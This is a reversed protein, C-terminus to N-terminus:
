GACLTLLHPRTRSVRTLLEWGLWDGKDDSTKGLQVCLIASEIRMGWAGEKYYGPECSIVHGSRAFSSARHSCCTLSAATELAAIATSMVCPKLPYPNAIGEPGEHVGGYSGIGHGVGHGFDLQAQWLAFRALTNFDQGAKGSPFVTRIVALHGQLVRTFAQKQARSPAGFHMTRTTDITGDAYQSGSDNVYPTERDITRCSGPVPEYHPLAGNPGSGSIDGYAPGRYYQEQARFSTHLVTAEHEDVKKGEKRILKDLQTM